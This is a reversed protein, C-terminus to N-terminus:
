FDDRLMRLIWIIGVVELLVGVILMTQGMASELLSSVYERQWFFMYVFVMPGLILMFTASMRGAATTARMQRRANLRDQIVSSLRELTQALNGGASRHVTLTTAFIKYDLLPVRHVLSRMVAPVSLGMSLQNSCRRFEVGLPDPSQKAVLEIAQDLSEGAHVARALMALAAPLQERLQSIRRARTFMLYLLVLGMGAFMGAIAPLPADLWVLIAGGVALGAMILLLLATAPSWSLGSDIILRHFWRDFEGVASQAPAQNRPIPFQRLQVPASADGATGTVTLDRFLWYIALVGSIVAAFVILAVL